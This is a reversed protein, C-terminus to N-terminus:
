KLIPLPPPVSVQPAVTTTTQPVIPAQTSNQVKNVLEAGEVVSYGASTEILNIITLGRKSRPNKTEKM